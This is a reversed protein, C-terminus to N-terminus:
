YIAQKVRHWERECVDSQSLRSSQPRTFVSWTNNKPFGNCVPATEMVPVIQDNNGGDTVCVWTRIQVLGGCSVGQARAHVAVSGEAMVSAQAYVWVHCPLQERTVNRARSTPVFWDSRSLPAASSCVGAQVFVTERQPTRRLRGTQRGSRGAGKLPEDCFACRIYLSPRNSGWGLVGSQLSDELGEFIPPLDNGKGKEGGNHLVRVLRIRKNAAHPAGRLNVGSWEMGSCLWPLFHSEPKESVRGHKVVIFINM